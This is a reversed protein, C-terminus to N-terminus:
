HVVAVGRTCIVRGEDILVSETYGWNPVKGGLDKVMHVQWIKKGNQRGCLGLKRQRGFCLSKWRFGLPDNSARRGMRQHLLDGVELAWVKKNSSSDSTARYAILKETGGFAGMQTFLGMQYLSDPTVLDPMM